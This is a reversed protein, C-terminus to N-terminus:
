KYFLFIVSENLFYYTHMVVIFSKATSRNVQQLSCKSEASLRKIQVNTIKQPLCIYLSFGTEKLDESILGSQKRSCRWCKISYCLNCRGPIYRNPIHPPDVKSNSLMRRIENYRKYKLLKYLRLKPFGRRYCFGGRKMSTESCKEAARQFFFCLACSM